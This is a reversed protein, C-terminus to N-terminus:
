FSSSPDYLEDLPVTKTFETGPTTTGELFLWKWKKNKEISMLNFISAQKGISIHVTMLRNGHINIETTSIGALDRPQPQVLSTEPSASPKNLLMYSKSNRHYRSAEIVFGGGKERIITV